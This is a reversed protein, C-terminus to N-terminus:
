GQPVDQFPPEMPRGALADEIAKRAVDYQFQEDAPDAYGQAEVVTRLNRMVLDPIEDLTSGTQLMGLILGRVQAYGLAAMQAKVRARYRANPEGTFPDFDREDLDFLWPTPDFEDSM